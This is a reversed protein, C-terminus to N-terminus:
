STLDGPRTRCIEKKKKKITVKDNHEVKSQSVEEAKYNKNLNKIIKLMTKISKTGSYGLNKDKMM